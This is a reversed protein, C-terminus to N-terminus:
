IGYISYTQYLRYKKALCIANEATKSMTKISNLKKM